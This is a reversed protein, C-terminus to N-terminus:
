EKTGTKNLSVACCFLLILPSSTLVPKNGVSVPNKSNLDFVLGM